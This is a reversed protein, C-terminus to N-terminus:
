FTRGLSQDWPQPAAVRVIEEERDRVYLYLHAFFEVEPLPYTPNICLYTYPWPSRVGPACRVEIRRGVRLRYTIGPYLRSPLDLYGKRKLRAWLAEGLTARAVDDARRRADQYERRSFGFGASRKPLHDWHHRWPLEVPGLPRAEDVELGWLWAWCRSWWSTGPAPDPANRDRSFFPENM